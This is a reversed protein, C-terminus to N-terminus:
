GGPPLDRAMASVHANLEARTSWPLSVPRLGLIDDTYRGRDGKQTLQFEGHRLRLVDRHHLLWLRHKAPRRARLIAIEQQLTVTKSRPPWYVLVDTLRPDDLASTLKETLPRDNPLDELLVPAHQERLQDRIKRRTELPNESLIGSTDDWWESPGLILIRAM